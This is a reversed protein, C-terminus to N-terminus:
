SCSQRPGPATPQPTAAEPANTLTLFTDWKGFFHLQQIRNSRLSVSFLFLMLPDTMGLHTDGIYFTKITKTLALSVFHLSIIAFHVHLIRIKNSQLPGILYNRRLRM